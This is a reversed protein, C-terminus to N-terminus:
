CIRSCRRKKRRYYGSAPFAIFWSFLFFLCERCSFPLYISFTLHHSGSVLVRSIFLLTDFFFFSRCFCNFDTVFVFLCVFLCRVVIYNERLDLIGFSRPFNKELFVLKSSPNFGITNIALIAVVVAVLLLM